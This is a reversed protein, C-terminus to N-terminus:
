QRGSFFLGKVYESTKEMGTSRVERTPNSRRDKGRQSDKENNYMTLFPAVPLQLSDLHYSATKSSAALLTKHGVKHSILQVALPM